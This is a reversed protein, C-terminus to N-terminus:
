SPRCPFIVRFVAGKGPAPPDVNIGANLNGLIDRCIALGLGFGSSKTTQFPQFLKVRLEEPIGPGSDSVMLEIGGLTNRTSVLLWREGSESEAAHIANFCLNLLVQKVAAPDIFALDPAAQLERRVEVGKASARTSVLELGSELVPHLPMMQAAYVKPSAMDLLQETLRDIRGVEDGILGFFKERFRPDQYHNPLLQIFTKISVLPNRIEHALSAGMLGVTALQEAHQAKASLHVRELAGAIIAALEQLQTVQPYTYPQRSAPIGVGVLVRLSHGDSSVLVGLAQDSLFKALAEREKSSKERLLREPTVWRIRRMTEAVPSNMEVVVGAGVLDGQSGYLILAKESQGWGKLVSFFALELRDIQAERGAAAFAAQRAEVAQPYFQFVRNLRSNLFAAFWLTIATVAFFDVPHAFLPSFVKDLMFALILVATILLFKEFVILIIHRADFIRYMSISLVTGAYFLLVVLPQIQIFRRDHTVSGLAMLVLITSAMACGGFLWVQLEQRRSGNLTKMTGMSDLLVACYCIFVGIQYAYYGWGYLRTMRTSHEPIFYGTFCVWALSASMAVGIWFRKERLILSAVVAGVINQKVFWFHLPVWAAVACTRRLWLLGDDVQTTIHLM